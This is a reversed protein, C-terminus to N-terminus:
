GSSKEKALKEIEKNVADEFDCLVKYKSINNKPTANNHKTTPKLEGLTNDSRKHPKKPKNNTITPM